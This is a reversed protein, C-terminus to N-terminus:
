SFLRYPPPRRSASPPARSCSPRPTWASRWSRPRPHDASGAITHGYQYAIGEAGEVLLDAGVGGARAARVVFQGDALAEPDRATGAARLHRRAGIRADRDLLVPHKMIFKTRSTDVKSPRYM